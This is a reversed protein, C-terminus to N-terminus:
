DREITVERWFGVRDTVLRKALPWPKEYRFAADLATDEGNDVHFYNAKGKWFCRSTTPSELLAGATVSDLPFYTIGEVVKVDDSEAVVVGDFMARTM